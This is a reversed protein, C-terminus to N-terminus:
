KMVLDISFFFYPSSAVGHRHKRGSNFLFYLSFLSVPSVVLLSLATDPYLSLMRPLLLDM